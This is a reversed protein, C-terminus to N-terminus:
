AGPRVVLVPVPSARVIKDAVSGMILRQWGSHGRTALAIADAQLERSLNL